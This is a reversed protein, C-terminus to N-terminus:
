PAVEESACDREPLSIAPPIGRAPDNFIVVGARDEDRLHSVTNGAKRLPVVREAGFARLSLDLEGNPLDALSIILTSPTEWDRWLTGTVRPPTAPCGDLRMYLSAASGTHSAPPLAEDHVVDLYLWSQDARVETVLLNQDAPMTCGLPEHARPMSPELHWVVSADLGKREARPTIASPSQSPAALATAPMKATTVPGDKKFPADASARDITCGAGGFTFAAALVAMGIARGGFHLLRRPRRRMRIAM